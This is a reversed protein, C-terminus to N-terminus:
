ANTRRSLRALLRVTGTAVLGGAAFYALALPAAESAPPPLYGAILWLAPGSVVAVVMAAILALVPDARRRGIALAVLVAAAGFGGFLVIRDAVVVRTPESAIVFLAAGPLVAWVLRRIGAEPAVRGVAGACILLLTGAPIWMVLVDVVASGAESAYRSGGGYHDRLADLALLGTLVLAGAAALRRQGAAAGALALAAAALTVAISWGVWAHVAGSRAAWVATLAFLAAALPLALRARAEHWRAAAFRGIAGRLRLSTGGLLLGGAERLSSSGADVLDRALDILAAGDRERVARPYARYSLRLLADRGRSRM